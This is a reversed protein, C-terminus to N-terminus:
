GFPKTKLYEKSNSPIISLLNMSLQFYKIKRRHISRFIMSKLKASFIMQWLALPQGENKVLLGLAVAISRSHLTDQPTALAYVIGELTYAVHTAINPSNSVDVLILGKNGWYCTNATEISAWASVAKKMLAGIHLAHCHKLVGLGDNPHCRKLVNTLSQNSTEKLKQVTPVMKRPAMM